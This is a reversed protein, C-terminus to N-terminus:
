SSNWSTDAWLRIFEVHSKAVRLEFGLSGDLRLLCGGREGWIFSTIHEQASTWYNARQSPKVGLCEKVQNFNKQSSVEAFAVTFHLTAARGASERLCLPKVLTQGGDCTKIGLSRVLRPEIVL